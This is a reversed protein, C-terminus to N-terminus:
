FRYQVRGYLGKGLAWDNWPGDSDDTSFQDVWGLEMVWAPEAQWRVLLGASGVTDTIRGGPISTRIGGAGVFPVLQLSHHPNQWFTWALEATSLWGSDGSVLQGPLGRLGVDSGLTFRMPDTLPQFAIQGGASATLQLRPAMAWSAAVLAGWARAEGPRIDALALERRQDSPTAASVGQLLYTTGTWGLRSTFGSANMGLRLYGNRPNRLVEPVDSPLPDSDLFSEGRVGSYGLSLSWRQSLTERFTWELQALGQLQNTSFSDLDSEFEVLERTSSGFAGTLSVTDALPLTYSVSGLAYGFEADDTGNLEGSLLLVDGDRVLDPKLLSGLLRAEGTGSTGDNRLSFEGQWRQRAREVSVRLSAQSPDAGLKSLSAKVSEVEPLLQLLQLERELRPVRLVEGRLGALLRLVRRRLWPDESEVRLEVLRGEVIELVGHDSSSRVYVRTSIYGDLVLRATLAAACSQLREGPDPIRRCEALIAEIEPAAYPLSGELRPLEAVEEPAPTLPQQLTTGTFPETPRTV